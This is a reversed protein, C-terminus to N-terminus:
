GWYMKLEGNNMEYGMTTNGVVNFRIYNWDWVNFLAKREITGVRRVQSHRSIELRHVEHIIRIKSRDFGLENAIIDMAEEDTLERTSDCSELDSYSAQSVNHRDEYPKWEQERELAAELHKVKAELAEREKRQQTELMDRTKSTTMNYASQIREALGDKNQKYAKCFEQKTGDFDYYIEEIFRYMDAGPYFGTLQQFEQIMM